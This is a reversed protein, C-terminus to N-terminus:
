IFIGIDKYFIFRCSWNIFLCVGDVVVVIWRNMGYSVIIWVWFYIWNLVGDLLGIM